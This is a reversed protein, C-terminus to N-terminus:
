YNLFRPYILIAIGFLLAIFGSVSPRFRIQVTEQALLAEM